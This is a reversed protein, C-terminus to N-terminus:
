SPPPKLSSKAQTTIYTINPLIGGVIGSLEEDSLGSGEKQAEVMEVYIFDLGREAGLEEVKQRFSGESHTADIFAKLENRLEPDSNMLEIFKRANEKSM